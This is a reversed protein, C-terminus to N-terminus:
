EIVIGDLDESPEPFQPDMDQLTAVLIQLVAWNRYKKQDAPVVYWPAAKTSTEEIADLYAERYQDWKARVELDGSSFKWRKAPETLRSRFRRAQEEAPIHLSVKVITTGSAALQDEFHRIAAYRARWVPEAVLDEVRVVLVDEYHSRNFVGIEGAAPTRAHIRWLFDHALEDPTPAKFSTVRVGQPNVGTFVKRITGDKGGADLAQLVLLVSRRSEAWLRNQLDALTFVLEETTTELEAKSGPAGPTGDPDIGDLDPRSGPGVVWRHREDAM